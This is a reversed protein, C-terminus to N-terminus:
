PQGGIPVVSPMNLPLYTLTMQREDLRDVRWQDDITDNVRATIVQDGLRFYASRGSEDTLGGLYTYPFAPPKPPPPAVPPPPPPLWTQVAFLSEPGPASASSAAASAAAAEALSKSAPKVTTSAPATASAADSAVPEARRALRGLNLGSALPTSAGSAPARAPIAASAEAATAQAEDGGSALTHEVILGVGTAIFLWALRKRTPTMAAM